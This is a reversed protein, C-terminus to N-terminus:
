IAVTLAAAVYFLRADTKGGRLNTTAATSGGASWGCFVLSSATLIAIPPALAFGARFQAAWLSVAAHASLSGSNVASPLTPVSILSMSAITGSLWAAGTLGILKATSFATPM